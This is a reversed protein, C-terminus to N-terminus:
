GEDHSTTMLSELERAQDPTALDFMPYVKDDGHDVEAVHIKFLGGLTWDCGRKAAAARRVSQKKRDNPWAGAGSFRGECSFGFYKGVDGPDAGAAVLSAMSQVTGCVPCVTAYHRHSSVGQLGFSAQVEALTYRKM